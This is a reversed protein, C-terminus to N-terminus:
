KKGLQLLDPHSADQILLEKVTVPKKTESIFALCNAVYTSCQKVADVAGVLQCLDHNSEQGSEIMHSCSEPKSHMWPLKRADVVSSVM